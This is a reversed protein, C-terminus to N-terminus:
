KLKKFATSLLREYEAVIAREEEKSFEMFNVNNKAKKINEEGTVEIIVGDKTPKHKISKLMDGSETLNSKTPNTSSDLIKRRRRSVSTERLPPLPKKTRNEVGFGSKTRKTILDKGLEGIKNKIAVNFTLTNTILKSLRVFV